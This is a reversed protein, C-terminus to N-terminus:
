YAIVRNPSTFNKKRMITKFTLEVEGNKYDIVVPMNLSKQMDKLIAEIGRNGKIKAGKNAYIKRFFDKLEKVNICPSNREDSMRDGFHRTFEVDIGYDKLLNDAFKELEQMDARTILACQNEENLMNEFAENVDVKDEGIMSRMSRSIKPNRLKRFAKAEIQRVREPTVDIAKGIQTLSMEKTFPKIGFRAKLITAERETLAGLADKILKEIQEKKIGALPDPEYSDNPFDARKGKSMIDLKSISKSNPVRGGGSANRYTASDSNYRSIQQAPYAENVSEGPTDKKYRKALKDTGEEGAGHEEFVYDSPVMSQLKRASMNTYSRAVQAAYYGISHAPAKAEKKKRDLLSILTKAADAYMKDESSTAEELGKIRKYAKVAAQQADDRSSYGTTTDYRGPQMGILRYGWRVVTKQSTAIRSGARKSQSMGTHAYVEAFEKGDWLLTMGIYKKGGIEKGEGKKVNLQEEINLTKPYGEEGPKKPPLGKKRRAHINDWLGPKKGEFAMGPKTHKAEADNKAKMKKTIDKENGAIDAPTSKDLKDVDGDNDLDRNSRAHQMMQKLSLGVGLQHSQTGKVTNPTKALGSVDGTDKYTKEAVMCSVNAFGQQSPTDFASTENWADVGATYAETIESLAIGTKESKEFLANKIKSEALEISNYIENSLSEIMEILEVDENKAKYMKFRKDTKVTKNKNYLEHFRKTPPNNTSELMAEFQENKSGSTAQRLRAVEAKRVKALIKQAIKAISGKRSEVRKDIQIKEGPSLSAYSAGKQGAVKKRIIQIAQKRARKKLKDTSAMRKALRLRAAKLRPAIRRLTMARKRRQAFSLVAEDLEMEEAIKMGGRVLDYVEQSYTQLGRPLGKKFTDYDGQSALARMKSASMGEVGEADPDREGASVVSINAFTYDKGNYKNLLTTFEPVRDSGVVLIVNDFKGNISKMADIITKSNSKQVMAGFARKALMVKDDYSLPNKKADQSHTLYMMPTARNKRAVDKIKNALKEHGITIPNMRGWGFVVTKGTAEQLKPNLEITNKVFEKEAKKVPKKKDKEM